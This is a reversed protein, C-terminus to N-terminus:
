PLARLVRITHEEVTTADRLIAYDGDVLAWLMGVRSQINVSVSHVARNALDLVFWDTKQPADIEKWGKTSLLLLRSKGEDQYIPGVRLSKTQFFPKGRELDVVDIRTGENHLFFGGGLCTPSASGFSNYIGERILIKEQSPSEGLRISRLSTGETQDYFVLWGKQFNGPIPYSSEELCINVAKWGREFKWLDESVLQGQSFRVRQFFATDQFKEHDVLWFADDKVGLSWTVPGYKRSRFLTYFRKKEQDFRLTSGDLSFWSVSQKSSPWCELRFSRLFSPHPGSLPKELDRADYLFFRTIWKGVSYLPYSWHRDEWRGSSQLDEALFIHNGALCAQLDGGYLGGTGGERKGSAADWVFFVHKQSLLVDSKQSLVVLYRESGGAKEFSTIEQNPELSVLPQFRGRKGDFFYVKRQTGGVMPVSFYMLFRDMSFSTREQEWQWFSPPEMVEGGEFSDLWQFRLVREKKGDRPGEPTEILLVSNALM